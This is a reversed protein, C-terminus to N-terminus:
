ALGLLPAWTRYESFAWIGFGVLVVTVGAMLIGLQTERDARRNVLFSVVAGLGLCLLAVLPGRGGLQALGSAPFRWAILGAVLLPTAVGLLLGTSLPRRSVPKFRALVLSLVFLLPALAMTALIGVLIATLLQGLAQQWVSWPSWGMLAALRDRLGPQLPRSDDSAYAEVAGGQTRGYWVITTVADAGGGAGASSALDADAIAVPSWAVTVTEPAASQTAPEARRVFHDRHWYLADATVALPRGGEALDRTSVALVEPAALQGGDPGGDPGSGTVAVTTLQLTGEAGPWLVNVDPAHATLPTASSAGAAAAPAGPVPGLALRQREDIVDAPGLELPEAAPLGAATLPLVFASWEADPGALGATTEGELWGVWGPLGGSTGSSWAAVGRVALSAQHVTLPEQVGNRQEEQIKSILDLYRTERVRTFAKKAM